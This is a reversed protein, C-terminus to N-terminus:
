FLELDGLMDLIDQSVHDVQDAETLNLQEPVSVAGLREEIM